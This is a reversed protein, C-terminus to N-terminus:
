FKVKVGFVAEKGLKFLNKMSSLFLCLRDDPSGRFETSFDTMARCHAFNNQLTEILPADDM